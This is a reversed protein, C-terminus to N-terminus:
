NGGKRVFPLNAPRRKQRFVSIEVPILILLESLSQRHLLFLEQAPNFRAAQMGSFLIEPMIKIVAALHLSQGSNDHM